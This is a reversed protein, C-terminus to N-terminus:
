RHKIQRFNILQQIFSAQHNNNNDDKYNDLQQDSRRPKEHHVSEPMINKNKKGNKKALLGKMVDSVLLVLDNIVFKLDSGLKLVFCFVLFNGVCVCVCM